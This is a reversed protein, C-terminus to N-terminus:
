DNQSYKKLWARYLNKIPDIIFTYVFLIGWGFLCSCILIIFEQAEGPKLGTDCNKFFIKIEDWLVFFTIIFGILLYTLFFIIFNM